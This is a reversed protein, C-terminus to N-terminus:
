SSMMFAKPFYHITQYNIFFVGFTVNPGTTATVSGNSSGPVDLEKFVEKLPNELPGACEALHHRLNM